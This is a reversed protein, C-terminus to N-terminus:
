LYKNISNAEAHAGGSHQTFCSVAPRSVSPPLPSVTPPIYPIRPEISGSQQLTHQNMGLQDTLVPNSILAAGESDNDEDDGIQQTDESPSWTNHTLTYQKFNSFSIYM